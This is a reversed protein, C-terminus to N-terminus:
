TYWLLREAGTNAFVIRGTRTVGLIATSPNSDLVTRLLRESNRHGTVDIGTMVIARGPSVLRAATWAVTHWISPGSLWPLEVEDNGGRAVLDRVREEDKPSLVTEWPPRGLLEGVARGAARRAAANLSIVRLDADLVLLSARTSDVLSAIFDREDTATSHAARRQRASIALTLTVLALTAIFAELMAGVATGESSEVVIDGFPGRGYASCSAGFVAAALVETMAAVGTLRLGAWVFVAYTLSSTPWSREPLFVVLLVLSTALLQATAELRGIGPARWVHGPPEDRGHSTALMILPVIVLDSAAHSAGGSRFTAWFSGDEVLMVVAGGLLGLVGAGAATAVVLRRVDALTELRAPGRGGGTLLGAIVVAEAANAVGFLVAVLPPRGGALNGLATVVVLAPALLRWRLPRTLVLLAVSVGAAPWWVAIQTAAPAARIAGACLLFIVAM